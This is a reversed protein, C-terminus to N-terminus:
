AVHEFGGSIAARVMAAYEESDGSSREIERRAQDAIAQLAADESHADAYEIFDFFTKLM